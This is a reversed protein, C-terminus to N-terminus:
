FFLARIEDTVIKKDFAQGLLVTQQLEDRSMPFIYVKDKEEDILDELQLRLTDKANPTLSGLFCSFQVRYLGAQMCAKAAKTRARDKEIDYLVWVIM